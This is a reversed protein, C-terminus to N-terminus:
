GRAQALVLTHAGATRLGSMQHDAFHQLCTDLRVGIPEPVPAGLFTFPGFGLTVSSRTQLGAAAFLAELQRPSHSGPEFGPRGEGPGGPKVLRKIARRVPALAPNRRPDLLWTLRVRNDDSAILFGGPTLLRAMEAVGVSASTLWPLVGLAVVLDFSRAHYPLRLADGLTLSLHDAVGARQAHRATRLLMAQAADLAYVRLGRSALATATLGAGCGIELVHTGVPLALRDVWELATSRRRQYITSSLDRRQYLSDWVDAQADFCAIIADRRRSARVDSPSQNSVTGQGM